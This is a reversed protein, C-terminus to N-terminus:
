NLVPCFTRWLRWGADSNVYTWTMNAPFLDTGLHSINLVGECLFGKHTFVHLVEFQLGQFTAIINFRHVCKTLISIKVSYKISRRHYQTSTSCTPINTAHWFYFAENKISWLDGNFMGRGQANATTYLVPMMRLGLYSPVFCYMFKISNSNRSCM